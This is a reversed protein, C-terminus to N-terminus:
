REYRGRKVLVSRYKALLLDVAERLYVARPVRTRKVLEDLATKQQPDLYALLTVKTVAKQKM